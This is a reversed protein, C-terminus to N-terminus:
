RMAAVDAAPHRRGRRGMLQASLLGRQFSGGISRCHGLAQDITISASASEDLDILSEIFSKPHTWDESSSEM